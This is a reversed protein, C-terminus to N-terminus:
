IAVNRVLGREITSAVSERCSAVHRTKSRLPAHVLVTEARHEGRAYRSPLSPPSHNVVSCAPWSAEPPQQLSRSAKGVTHLEGSTHRFDVCACRRARTTRTFQPSAARISRQSGPNASVFCFTVTWGIGSAWMKLGFRGFEVCRSVTARM